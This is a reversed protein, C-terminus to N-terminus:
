KMFEKLGLNLVGFVNTETLSGMYNMILVRDVGREQVLDIVASKYYRLDLIILDYHYALFPVLSHAFSDKILLMTERGAEANSTKTVSVCANNGSIFSSYKDKKDLYSFDYFGKFNVGTDEIATTYDTDDGEYRYYYMSDPKIWKMGASSWTTGYFASSVEEIHYAELPQPQAGISKMIETYGYYAGLTTWHHDTRYYIQENGGGYSDTNYEGNIRLRLPTLLDVYQLYSDSAISTNFYNWLDDTRFKPYLAPLYLQLADVPRGAIAVTYPINLKKLAPSFKLIADLNNDVAEYNPYDSRKIIYSDGAAIVDNNEQKLLAIESMGKIGVFVNRLPFQDAFYDAIEATFKGDILRDLFKGARIRETLTGEFASSLAPYKQLYRNEQESFDADPIIYIMIAFTYIIILMAVVTVIDIVRTKDRLKFQLDLLTEQETMKEPRKNM